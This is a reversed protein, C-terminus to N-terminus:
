NKEETRVPLIHSACPNPPCLSWKVLKQVASKDYSSLNLDYLGRLTYKMTPYAESPDCAVQVVRGKGGLYSIITAVLPGGQYKLRPKLYRDRNNDWPFENMQGHFIATAALAEGRLIHNKANLQEADLRSVDHISYIWHNPHYRFFGYGFVRPRCNIRPVGTGLRDLLPGRAKQEYRSIGSTKAVSHVVFDMWNSWAYDCDPAYRHSDPSDIYEFGEIATELATPAPFAIDKDATTTETCEVRVDPTKCLWDFPFVDSDYRLYSHFLFPMLDSFDQPSLPEYNRSAM